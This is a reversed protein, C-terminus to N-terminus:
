WWVMDINCTPDINIGDTEIIDQRGFWTSEMLHIDKAWLIIDELPIDTPVDRIITDPIVTGNELCLVLVVNRTEM